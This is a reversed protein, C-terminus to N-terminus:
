PKIEAAHFEPVIEREVEFDKTTEDPLRVRFVLPWSSEHGDRNSHMYDAYAEAAESPDNLYAVMIPGRHSSKYEDVLPDYSVVDKGCEEDDEWSVCWVRCKYEKM